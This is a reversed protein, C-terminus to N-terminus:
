GGDGIGTRALLDLQKQERPPSASVVGMVMMAILFVGIKRLDM